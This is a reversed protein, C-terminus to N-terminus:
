KAEKKQQRRKKMYERQYANRDFKPKLETAAAYCVAGPTNTVLKTKPVCLGWHRDKCLRCKPADM